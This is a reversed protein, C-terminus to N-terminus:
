QNKGKRDENTFYFIGGVIATIAGLGMGIWSWANLQNNHQYKWQQSYTLSVVSAWGLAFFVWLKITGKKPLRVLFAWGAVGLSYMLAIAVYDPLYKTLLLTVGGIVSGVVVAILMRICASGYLLLLLRKLIRVINPRKRDQDTESIESMYNDEVAICPFPIPQNESSRNVHLQAPPNTLLSETACLLTPKHVKHLSLGVVVRRIQHFWNESYM